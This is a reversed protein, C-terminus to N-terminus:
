DTVLYIKLPIYIMMPTEHMKALRRKILHGDNVKMNSKRCNWMIIQAVSTEQTVSTDTPSFGDILTSM